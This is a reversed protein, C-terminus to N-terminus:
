IKTILTMILHLSNLILYKTLAFWLELQDSRWVTVLNSILIVSTNAANNIASVGSFSCSSTVASTSTRSILPSVIFLFFVSTITVVLLVSQELILINTSPLGRVCISCNLYRPLMSVHSPLLSFSIFLLIAITFCHDLLMQLWTM